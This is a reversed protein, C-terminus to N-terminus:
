TERSSRQWGRQVGRRCGKRSAGLRSGAGIVGCGPPSKPREVLCSIESRCRFGDRSGRPRCARHLAEASRSWQTHLYILPEEPVPFAALFAELDDADGMWNVDFRKM